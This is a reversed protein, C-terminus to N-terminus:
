PAEFSCNILGGPYKIGLIGQTKKGFDGTKSM